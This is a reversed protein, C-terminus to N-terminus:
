SAQLNTSYREVNVRNSKLTIALRVPFEHDGEDALDVVMPLKKNLM